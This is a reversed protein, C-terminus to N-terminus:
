NLEFEGPMQSGAEVLPIYWEDYFYPMLEPASQRIDDWVTGWPRLYIVSNFNGDDDSYALEAIMLDDFESETNIRLNSSSVECDIFVGRDVTLSDNEGLILKIRALPSMYSSDEDWLILEGNERDEFEIVACCDFSMGKYKQWLGGADGIDWWGYYSRVELSNDGALESGAPAFFMTLESDQLNLEIRDDEFVGTYTKEDFVLKVQKGELSWNILGGEDGLYFTGWGNEGLELSVNGGFALTPDVSVGDYEASVCVFSGLAPSNESCGAM